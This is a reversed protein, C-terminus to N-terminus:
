IKQIRVTINNSVYGPIICLVKIILYRVKFIEPYTPTTSRAYLQQTKIQQLVLFVPKPSLNM